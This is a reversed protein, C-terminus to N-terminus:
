LKEYEYFGFLSFSGHGSTAINKVLMEAYSKQINGLMWKQKNNQIRIM